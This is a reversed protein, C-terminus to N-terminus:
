SPTAHRQSSSSERVLRENSPMSDAFHSEWSQVVSLSAGDKLKKGIKLMGIVTDALMAPLASEGDLEAYNNRLANAQTFAWEMFYRGRVDEQCGIVKVSSLLNGLQGAIAHLYPMVDAAPGEITQIWGTPLLLLLGTVDRHDATVNSCWDGFHSASTGPALQGVLCVRTLPTLGRGAAQLKDLVTDVLSM